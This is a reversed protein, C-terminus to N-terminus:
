EAIQRLEENSFQIKVEEGTNKGIYRHCIGRGSIVVKKYLYGTITNNIINNRIVSKGNERYSENKEIEKIDFNSDDIDYVYVLYDKDLEFNVIDTIYDVKIPLGNKYTEIYSKIIEESTLPKNKTLQENSVDLTFSKQSNSGKFECKMAYGSSAIVKMMDKDKQSVEDLCFLRWFNYLNKDNFELIELKNEDILYQVVVKQDECKFSSATFIGYSVPCQNNAENVLQHVKDENGCGNFMLIIGLLLVGITFFSLKFNRM